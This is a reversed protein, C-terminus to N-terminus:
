KIDTKIEELEKNTFTSTKNSYACNICYSPASIKNEDLAEALKELSEEYSDAEIFYTRALTETYKVAFKM